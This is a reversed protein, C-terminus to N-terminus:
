ESKMHIATYIESRQQEFMRRWSNDNLSGGQVVAHEIHAQIAVTRNRWSDRVFQVLISANQIPVIFVPVTVRTLWSLDPPPETTLPIDLPSTDLSALVTSHEDDPSLQIRALKVSIRGLRHIGWRGIAKWIGRFIGDDDESSLGIAAGADVGIRGEVDIWIGGNETINLV